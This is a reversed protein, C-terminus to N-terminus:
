YFINILIILLYFYFLIFDLRWNARRQTVSLQTLGVGARELSGREFDGVPSETVRTSSLSAWDGGM